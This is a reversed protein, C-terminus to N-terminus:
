PLLLEERLPLHENNHQNWYPSMMSKMMTAKTTMSQNGLVSGTTEEWSNIQWPFDKQFRIELTRALDQYEILYVKENGDTTLSLTASEPENDKHLLRTFFSAPILKHEGTPLSGPNIRIRTWLEDELIAMDLKEDQDGESEFYSRGSFQYGNKKLNLQTFTHGCWEQSSMTTKLSHPFKQIDVPTFVSQMLSYPYIGTNFKKVLNLKLIPVRDDGAQQPYDLKVQKSKSFDETVFITVAHGEHIEGYRAQELKYSTIEAKGQYWYDKFQEENMVSRESTKVAMDSSHDTASPSNCSLMFSLTSTTISLLIAYKM